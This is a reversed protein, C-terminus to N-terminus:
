DHSRAGAFAMDLEMRADYTNLVYGTIKLHSIGRSVATLELKLGKWTIVEGAVPINNYSLPYGFAIANDEITITIGEKM